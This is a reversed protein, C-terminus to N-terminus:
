LETRVYRAQGDSVREGSACQSQVAREGDLNGTGLAVYGSYSEGHDLGIWGAHGPKQYSLEQWPIELKNFSHRPIM